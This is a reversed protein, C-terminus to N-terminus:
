TCLLITTSWPHLSLAIRNCAQVPGSPELLNLSGSKLVIPVHLHYPQWGWACPVKVARSTNRTSLETLSQTSGLSMTCGSPNHQHFIGIVGHSISGAAKRSAACHSWPLLLGLVFCIENHTISSLPTTLFFVEETSSFPLFLTHVIPKLPPSTHLTLWFGKASLVNLSHRYHWAQQYKFRFNSLGM